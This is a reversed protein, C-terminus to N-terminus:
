ADPSPPQESESPDSTSAVGPASVGLEAQLRTRIVTLKAEIQEVQTLLSQFFPVLSTM